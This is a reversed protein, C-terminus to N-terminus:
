KIIIIRIIGDLHICNNFSRWMYSTNNNMSYQEYDTYERNYWYHLATSLVLNQMDKRTGNFSNDSTSYTGRNVFYFIIFSFFFIVIISILIKKLKM